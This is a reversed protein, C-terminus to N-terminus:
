EKLLIGAITTLEPARSGSPFVKVPVTDLAMEFTFYYIM